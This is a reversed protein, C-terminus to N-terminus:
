DSSVRDTNLPTVQIRMTCSVLMDKDRALLIQASKRDTETVVLQCKSLVTWCMYKL